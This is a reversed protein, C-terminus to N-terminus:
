QACLVFPPYISRSIQAQSGGSDVVIGDDQYGDPTGVYRPDFRRERLELM